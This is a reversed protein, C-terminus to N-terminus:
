PALRTHSWGEANKTFLIRDHLRFERGQWFEFSEPLVLYGGWNSPRELKKEEPNDLFEKRKSLLFERNPIPKSQPSIIANIRSDLPRSDFYRDSDEESIRTAVGSIRVQRELEPWFFLLYVRNNKEIESGKRSEYNTFFVFGHEDFGKLLVVRGSPQNEAATALFMATPELTESKLVEEFWISFLKFPDNVVKEDELSHKQYEKRIHGLGLKGM